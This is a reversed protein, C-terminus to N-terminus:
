PASLLKLLLRLQPPALEAPLQMRKGPLASLPSKDPLPPPAVPPPKGDYYSVRASVAPEVVIADGEARLGLAAQRPEIVAWRDHDDVSRPQALAQWVQELRSRLAAADQLRRDAEDLAHQMRPMIEADIRRRVQPAVSAKPVCLKFSGDTCM